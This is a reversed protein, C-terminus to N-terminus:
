DDDKYFASAFTTDSSGELILKLQRLEDQCPKILASLVLIHLWVNELVEVTTVRTGNGCDELVFTQRDTAGKHTEQDPMEVTEVTFSSGQKVNSRFIMMPPAALDDAQNAGARYFQIFHDARDPVAEVKRVHPKWHSNTPQLYLADWVETRPRDIFVEGTFQHRLPSRLRAVAYGIAIIFALSLVVSVVSSIGFGVELVTPLVTFLAFVLTLYFVIIAFPGAITGLLIAVCIALIGFLVAAPIVEVGSLVANVIGTVLLFVPPFLVLLPSHRLRDPLM